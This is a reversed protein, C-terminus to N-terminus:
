PFSGYTEAEGFHSHGLLCQSWSSVPCARRSSKRVVAVRGQCPTWQILLKLRLWRVWTQQNAFTTSFSDSLPLWSSCKHLNLSVELSQSQKKLLSLAWFLFVMQGSTFTLHLCVSTKGAKLPTPFSAKHLRANEECCMSHPQTLEGAVPNLNM